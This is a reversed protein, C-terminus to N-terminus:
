LGDAACRFGVVVDRTAKPRRDLSAGRGVGPMSDWGSGKIVMEDGDATATWQFVNGALDLVGYSSAGAAYSGVPMTDGTGKIASNLKDPEFANGWPYALGDEGRAAKEIEDATPLRRKEGRLAGRWACYRDAESWTVLVVPHDERGDPPNGGSWAFRAVQSAYDRPLGQANWGAEDIGPAALHEARVMEAFQAQTVPMLDIRFAPLQASHRDAEREFRKQVRATDEGSSAQFDDYASAREEPTSGNVYRGEPIAIMRDDAALSLSAHGASPSTAQGAAVGSAGSCGALVRASALTIASV